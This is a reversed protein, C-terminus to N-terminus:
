RVIGGLHSFPMALSVALFCSFRLNTEEEEDEKLSKKLRGVDFSALAIVTAQM